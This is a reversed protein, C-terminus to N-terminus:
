GKWIKVPSTKTKTRIWDVESFRDRLWRQLLSETMKETEYHGADIIAMDIKGTENMVEFFRHYTVDSTVYADAGARKALSIFDSGSGGCVAVKSIEGEEDGVFRVADVDLVKSVLNLFSSLNLPSRLTGIAGIGAGSFSQEVAIIDHPVEEYPHAEKVAELVAPLLWRSTLVELRVESVSERMGGATGQAPNSDPGPRFTGTGGHSYSCETYSGIQGAGAAFAAERVDEIRALPVFIVLKVQSNDLGSLFDIHELGLTRALEFSVGDRAADLNTHIAYLAIGSEAMELAMSSVLSADTLSELPRFLLPHHTIICDVDLTKAEAIVDPTLDLAILCRSVERSSRGIQLGVNDYSQATEAPAWEQLAADIDQVCISM